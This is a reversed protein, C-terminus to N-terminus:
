GRKLDFEVDKAMVGVRHVKRPQRAKGATVGIKESM